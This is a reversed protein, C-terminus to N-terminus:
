RGVMSSARAAGKTSIGQGSVSSAVIGLCVAFLFLAIRATSVMM